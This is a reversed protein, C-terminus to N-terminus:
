PDMSKSTACLANFLEQWRKRMGLGSSSFLDVLILMAVAILWASLSFKARFFCQRSSSRVKIAAHSTIRWACTRLLSFQAIAREGRIDEGESNGTELVEKSFSSPELDKPERVLNDKVKLFMTRTGNALLMGNGESYYWMALEDHLRQRELSKLPGAGEKKLREPSAVGTIAWLAAYAGLRRESVRLAIQRSLSHAFYIGVLAIALKLILDVIATAANLLETDLLITAIDDTM